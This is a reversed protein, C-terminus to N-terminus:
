TPQKLVRPSTKSAALSEGYGFNGPPDSHDTRRHLVRYSDPSPPLRALRVGNLKASAASYCPRDSRTVDAVLGAVDIKSACNRFAARVECRSPQGKSCLRRIQSSTGLINDSQVSRRGWLITMGLRTSGQAPCRRRARATPEFAHVAPVARGHRDPRRRHGGRRRTLHSLGAKEPETWHQNQNRTWDELSFYEAETKRFLTTREPMGGREFSPRKPRDDRCTSRPIRHVRQRRARNDHPRVAGIRVCFRTTRAERRQPWARQRSSRWYSPHSRAALFRACTESISMSCGTTTARSLLRDLAGFGMPELM